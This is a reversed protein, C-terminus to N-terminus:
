PKQPANKRAEALQAALTAALENAHNLQASLAQARQAFVATQSNAERLAAEYDGTSLSSGNGVTTRDQASAPAAILLLTLVAYKMM